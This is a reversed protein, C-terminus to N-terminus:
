SGNGWGIVTVPIEVGYQRTVHIQEEASLLGCSCPNNIGIIPLDRAASWKAVWHFAAAFAKSATDHDNGFRIKTSEHPAAKSDLIFAESGFRDKEECFEIHITVKTNSDVRVDIVQIPQM